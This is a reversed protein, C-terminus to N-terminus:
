NFILLALSVAGFTVLFLMKWHDSSQQKAAQQSREVQQAYAREVNALHDKYLQEREFLLDRIECLIAYTDDSNSPMESM